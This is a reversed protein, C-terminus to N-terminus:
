VTTNNMFNHQHFQIGNEQLSKLLNTRLENRLEWADSPSDAWAALWCKITDKQLDMVWFSPDEIKNFYKSTSAVQRAVEEVKALNSDPAVFFEIHAWIFNDNMTLHEIEKQLIKSNPVVIRVWDWRKLVSYTLGIEEILGYQGDLIVTDGVKISKFFSILIGSFLNELFPRLAVGVIVSLIAAILSVYVSPVKDLYPIGIAIFWLTGLALPFAKRIFSFRDEIGSIGKEKLSKEQDELPSETEVSDVIERKKISKLKKKEALNIKLRFFLYAFLFLVTIAFFYSYKVLFQNLDLQEGM